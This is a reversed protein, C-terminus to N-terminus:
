SFRQMSNSGCRRMKGGGIQIFANIGPFYIGLEDLHGAHQVIRKITEFRGKLPLRTEGGIGAM